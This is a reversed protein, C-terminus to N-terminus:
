LLLTLLSSTVLPLCLPMYDHIQSETPLLMEAVLVLMRCVIGLTWMFLQTHPQPVLETVVLGQQWAQHQSNLGETGLLLTVSPFCWSGCATRQGKCTHM